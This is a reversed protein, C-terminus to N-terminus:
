ETFSLGGGGLHLLFFLHAPRRPSLKSLHRFFHAFQTFFVKLDCCPLTYIQVYLYLVTKNSSDIGCCTFTITYCYIDNCSKSPWYVCNDVKSWTTIRTRTKYYLEHLGRAIEALFTEELGKLVWATASWSCKLIDLMWGDEACMRLQTYGSITLETTEHM